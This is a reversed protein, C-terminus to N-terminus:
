RKAGPSQHNSRLLVPPKARLLEPTCNFCLAVHDPTIYHIGPVWQRCGGCVTRWDKIDGHTGNRKAEEIGELAAELDPIANTKPM